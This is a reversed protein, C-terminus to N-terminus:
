PHHYQIGLFFGNLVLMKIVQFFKKHWTVSQNEIIRTNQGGAQNSVPGLRTALYFNEQQATNIGGM